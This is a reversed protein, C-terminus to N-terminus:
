QQGFGRTFSRAKLLHHKVPQLILATGGPNVHSLVLGPYAHLPSQLNAPLQLGLLNTWSTSTWELVHSRPLSTEKGMTFHPNLAITQLNYLALHIHCVVQLGSPWVSSLLCTSAYCPLFRQGTAWDWTIGCSGTHFGPASVSWTGNRTLSLACVLLWLQIAFDNRALFDPRLSRFYLCHIGPPRLGM